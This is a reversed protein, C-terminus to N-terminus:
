LVACACIQGIDKFTQSQLLIIELGIKAIYVSESQISVHIQLDIIIDRYMFMNIPKPNCFLAGNCVGLVSKTLSYTVVNPVTRLPM